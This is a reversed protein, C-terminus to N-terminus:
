ALQQRQRDKAYEFADSFYHELPLGAAPFAEVGANVMVPPGSAYIEYGSLDEFDEVIADHVFGTRGQWDADPESLVPTYSFNDHHEAWQRPLEDMYLDRKSRVGWYLHMPRKIAEAFAHEIIGKVPAFGTGGAMFIIPRSSNERLYFNGFPAEVRLIAKENLQEFIFHTFEGEDVLRIHLEILKDDHPANAISFARRRDDPLIFDLYQGALFQLREGEPLKLYLRVV